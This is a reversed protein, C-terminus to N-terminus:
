LCFKLDLHQYTQNRRLGKDKFQLHCSVQQTRLPGKTPECSDQYKERQESFFVLWISYPGVWLVENLTVDKFIKNGFVTGNLSVLKFKVEYSNTKFSFIIIVNNLIWMRAFCVFVWECHWGQESELRIQKKLM